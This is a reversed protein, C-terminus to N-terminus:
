VAPPVDCTRKQRVWMHLRLAGQQRQSNADDHRAVEDCIEVAPVIAMTQIHSELRTRARNEESVDRPMDDISGM